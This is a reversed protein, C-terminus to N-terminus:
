RSWRAVVAPRPGAAALVAGPVAGASDITTNGSDVVDVPHPPYPCVDVFYSPHEFWNGTFAIDGYPRCGGRDSGYAVVGTLECLPALDTGSGLCPGFDVTGVPNDISVNGRVTVYRSGGDTYFVNGGAAARKGSAVNGEILEGDALSDGQRGVTYVAGGDWLELLFGTIRNAVIRNGRSTTPTDYVGWEAVQRASMQEADPLGLYRGPDVLGWGWGVAIGAWPVDAIANHAVTSRTTFGLAIGPADFYERGARRVVNDTIANDRTVQAAHSPHHDVKAVGGLVIAAGSTDAFRNAVVTARQTGTSLDLGVAGLHAFRNGAFRVDRAFRLRVAGPTRTTDPDHGVTNTTHGRGDLHFGGQDAVYGDPGSPGLWTAFRFDLGTFRVHALPRRLTGHADVLASARPLEVDVRDMREGSRPRYYLWREGPEDLLELANEISSILRFSWEVPFVNANHWCPQAMVIQRGVIRDVPCRMSKWQTNTVLELASPDRWGAMTDDPATYGTPTRVFGVPDVTGRARVARRGDVYLQRSDVGAPVRARYISRARDHLRWGRVRVSGSIVPHAGPAAQWAVDRAATGSDRADLRLPRSLRYTGDLLLIRAPTSAARAVDRARTLTALPQARTGPDRDDGHPSVWITPVAAATGAPVGLAVAVLALLFRSSFRM